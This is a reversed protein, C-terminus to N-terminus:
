VLQKKARCLSRVDTFGIKKGSHVSQNNEGRKIRRPILGRKSKFYYQAPSSGGRIFLNCGKFLIKRENNVMTGKINSLLVSLETVSQNTELGTFFSIL